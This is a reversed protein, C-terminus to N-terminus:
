WFHIAEMKLVPNTLHTCVSLLDTQTENVSPISEFEASDELDSSDLYAFTKCLFGRM